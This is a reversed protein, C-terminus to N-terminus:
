SRDSMPPPKYLLEHSDDIRIRFELDRPHYGLAKAFKVTFKWVKAANVFDAMFGPYTLLWPQGALRATVASHEEVVDAAFNLAKAADLNYGIQGEAARTGEVHMIIRDIYHNRVTAVAYVRAQKYRPKLVRVANEGLRDHWVQCVWLYPADAKIYWDEGQDNLGALYTNITTVSLPQEPDIAGGCQGAVFLIEPVEPVADVAYTFKYAMLRERLEDLEDPNGGFRFCLGKDSSTKLAVRNFEFEARLKELQAIVSNPTFVEDRHMHVLVERHSTSVEVAPQRSEFHM